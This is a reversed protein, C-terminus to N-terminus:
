NKKSGPVMPNRKGREALKIQNMQVKELWIGKRNSKPGGIRLAQLRAKGLRVTSFVQPKSSALSHALLGRFKWNSDVDTRNGWKQKHNETISFNYQSISIGSDLAKEGAPIDLKKSILSL